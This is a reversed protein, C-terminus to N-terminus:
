WTCVKRVMEDWRRSAEYSRNVGMRDLARRRREKALECDSAHVPIQAAAPRSPRARREARRQDQLDREIARLKRQATAEDGRDADTYDWYKEPKACPESQYVLSGKADRCKYVSQAFAPVMFPMLIAFLLTRRM